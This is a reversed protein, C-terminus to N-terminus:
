ENGAPKRETLNRLCVQLFLKRIRDKTPRDMCRFDTAYVQSEKLLEGIKDTSIELRVFNTMQDNKIGGRSNSQYIYKHWINCVLQSALDDLTSFVERARM